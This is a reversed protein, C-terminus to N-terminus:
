VISHEADSVDPIFPIIPGTVFRGCLACFEQSSLEACMYVWDVSWYDLSSCWANSGISEADVLAILLLPVTLHSHRLGYVLSTSM